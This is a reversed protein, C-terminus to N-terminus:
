PICSITGVNDIADGNPNPDFQLAEQSSCSIDRGGLDTNDRLNLISYAHVSITATGSDDGVTTGERFNAISGAWISVYDSGTAILDSSNVRLIGGRYADIPGGSQTVNDVRIVGGEGVELGGNTITAGRVRVSGTRYAGVFGELNVTASANIRVSGGEGASVSYIYDPNNTGTGAVVSIDSGVFVSGNRLAAIAELYDANSGTKGTLSIPGYTRVSGGDTALVGTENYDSIDVDTVWMSGNVFARLGSDGGTVSVNNLSVTASDSVAIVPVYVGDSADAYANASLTLNEFRVSKPGFVEITPLYGGSLGAPLDIGDDRSGTADGEFFYRGALDPLELPGDCVGTLQYTVNPQLKTNILAQSDASCDVSVEGTVGENSELAIIRSDLHEFNANVEAARAPADVSFTHPVAAVAANSTCILAVASVLSLQQLTLKM